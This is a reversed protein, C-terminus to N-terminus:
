RIYAASTGGFARMSVTADAVVPLLSRGWFRARSYRLTPVEDRRANGGPLDLNAGSGDCVSSLM